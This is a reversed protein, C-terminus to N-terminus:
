KSFLMPDEVGGDENAHLLVETMTSLVHQISEQSLLSFLPLIKNRFAKAITGYIKQIHLYKISVEAASLSARVEPLIEFITKKYVFLIADRSSLKLFTGKDIMIQNMFEAYYYYAKQAHYFAMNLNSSHLFIIQYVFTICQFGRELLYQFYQSQQHGCCLDQKNEYFFATYETILKVYNETIQSLAIDCTKYNDIRTLSLSTEDFKTVKKITTTTPKKDKCSNTKM